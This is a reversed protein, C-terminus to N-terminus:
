LIFCKNFSTISIFHTTSFSTESFIRTRVPRFLHSWAHSSTLPPWNFTSITSYIYPPENWQGSKPHLHMIAAGTYVNECELHFSIARSSHNSEIKISISINLGIDLDQRPSVVVSHLQIIELLNGRHNRCIIISHQPPSSSWCRLLDLYMCWIACLERIFAVYYLPALSALPALPHAFAFTIFYQFRTITHHM